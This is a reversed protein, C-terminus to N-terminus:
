VGDRPFTPTWALVRDDGDDPDLASDVLFAAIATM